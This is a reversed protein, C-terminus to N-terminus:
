AVNTVLVTDVWYALMDWLSQKSQVSIHVHKLDDAECCNRLRMTVSVKLYALVDWLASFPSGTYAGPQHRKQKVLDARREADDAEAQGHHAVRQAEARRRAWLRALGGHERAGGATAAAAAVDHRRRPRRCRLCLYHEITM